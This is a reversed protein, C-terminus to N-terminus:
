LLSTLFTLSFDVDTESRYEFFDELTGVNGEDLWAQYASKGTPGTQHIEVPIPPIKKVEVKM